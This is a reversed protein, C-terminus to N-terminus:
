LIAFEFLVRNRRTRSQQDLFVFFDFHPLNQALPIRVSHRNQGFHTSLDAEFVEDFAPGDLGFGIGATVNTTGDDLMLTVQMRLDDNLVAGALNEVVVVNRFTGVDFHEFALLDRGTRYE